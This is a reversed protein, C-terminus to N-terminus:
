VRVFSAADCKSFCDFFQFCGDLFIFFCRLRSRGFLLVQYSILLFSGRGGAALWGAPLSEWFLFLFDRRIVSGSQGFCSFSGVSNMIRIVRGGVRM